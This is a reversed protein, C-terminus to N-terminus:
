TTRTSWAAVQEEFLLTHRQPWTIGLDRTECAEKKNQVGNAWGFQTATASLEEEAAFAFEEMFLPLWTAAAMQRALPLRKQVAVPM